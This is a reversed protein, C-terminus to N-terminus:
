ENNLLQIAHPGFLNLLHTIHYFYCVQMISAFGNILHIKKMNKSSVRPVTCDETAMGSSKLACLKIDHYPM